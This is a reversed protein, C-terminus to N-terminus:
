QVTKLFQRPSFDPTLVFRRAQAIDLMGTGIDASQLLNEPTRRGHRKLMPEFFQKLREADSRIM